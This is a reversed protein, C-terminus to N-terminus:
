KAALEPWYKLILAVTKKVGEMHDGGGEYEISVAGKYKADKLLGLLYKYDM